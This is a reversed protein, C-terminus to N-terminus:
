PAEAPHGSPSFPELALVGRERELSQRLGSSLSYRGPLQVEAWAGLDPLRLAMRVQWRCGTAPDAGKAGLADHVRGAAEASALRIRLGRLEQRKPRRSHKRWAELSTLRRCIVLSDRGERRSVELDLVALSQERLDSGCRELERDFLLVTGSGEPDSLTLRAYPRQNRSVLRAVGTILAAVTFRGPAAETVTSFLRVGAGELEERCADLPHGSILFGAAAREAEFREVPPYPEAEALVPDCIELDGDDFLSGMGAEPKTHFSQSYRILEEASEAIRRRNPELADLAGARALNELGQRKLDALNVRRALDGLSAFPGDKERAAVLRECAETSVGKIAGLAYPLTDNVPRFRAFSRHIDPPLVELGRRGAETWLRSIKDYRGVDSAGAEANLTAAFFAAPHRAKLYATQYSVLAYAAAHSKNFGYDAFRLVLDYVTESQRRDLGGHQQLGALFRAKQAKMEEPKKKGMARRLIDAEGLSYGALSRAIEMVQEQYVIIGYTESLIPELGPHLLEMEREGHKVACYHEINQMPGPRYLAVVAILDEFRDPQLQLLANRMGEGEVQYLGATDARCYLDLAERDDLPIRALDIEDGADRIFDLAARIATQAKSSLFDFKVLGAREVWVMDYQTSQFDDRGRPDRFLPVSDILPRDGIVIGAPHISPNRFLGEIRSALDYLQHGKEEEAITSRFAELDQWAEGLSIPRAPNYPIANAVRDTQARALGLVRGTDHLAARAQLTNFTVIKAVRDAGYRERVHEMVEDRRIECFDIDFDPMSIREPNLFREFLLGYRIPDLDVIRLAYAVLSGAGSGRGPGVPINRAQAWNVFEAVILFYGAFRMSIITDLEYELRKRYADPAAALEITALLRDLGERAQQRLLEEEDEAFSPLIPAQEEPRFSVRRAIDVTNDLAEPLDAFRRRLEDATRMRNEETYRSEHPERGSGGAIGHLIQHAPLFEADPFCAETTAVLPLDLEYAFDLLAPETRAEARTRLSGGTGHRQIEVYLRDPFLRVLQDLLTRAAASRGERLLAGIAGHAGGTLCILGEARGDLEGLRIAPLQRATDLYMGSVLHLLNRFGPQTQALLVIPPAPATGARSGAHELAVTCGIIPQVGAEAMRTSFDLAGFLNGTDTLGAAPMDQENCFAAIEPIRLAGELPSYQSVLRLHIVPSGPNNEPM